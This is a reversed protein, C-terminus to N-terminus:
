VVRTELDCPHVSLHSGNALLVLFCAGSCSDVVVAERVGHLRVVAGAILDPRKRYEACRALADTTVPVGLKRGRLETFKVDPWFDRADSFIRAKARGLTFDNVTIRNTPWRVCWVEFGYVIM